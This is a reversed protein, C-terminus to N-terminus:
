KKAILFNNMWFQFYRHKYSSFGIEKCYNVLVERNTYQKHDRIEHKSILGLEFSLFELIPKSYTTPATLLLLGDPRLVRYVERLVYEPNHLHELNALSTVVDFENNRFPLPYALDHKILIIKDDQKKLNVSIDVGLGTAIRNKIKYLLKANYGCGVDLVKSNVPIHKIVKRFRLKCLFKEFFPEKNEFHSQKRSMGCIILLNIM